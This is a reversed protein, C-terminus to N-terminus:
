RTWSDLIEKTLVYMRGPNGQSTKYTDVTIAEREILSEVCEKFERKKMHSMNMLDSHRAKGSYKNVLLEVLKREGSLKDQESVIELFPITNAFYFYCLYLAQSTKEADVRLNGFFSACSGSKIAAADM